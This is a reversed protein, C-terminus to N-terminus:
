RATWRAGMWAIWVFMLPFLIVSSIVLGPVNNFLAAVTMLIGAAWTAWMTRRVWAPLNPTFLTLMIGAITYLLNAIAASGLTFYHEAATFAAADWDQLPKGAVPLFTAAREVVLFIAAGEGTFDFITGFAALLVALTAVITTFNQPRTIPSGGTSARASLRSARRACYGDFSMASLM